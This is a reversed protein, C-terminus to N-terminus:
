TSRSSRMTPRSHWPRVAPRRSTVLMREPRPLVAESEFRIHVPGVGLVQDAKLRTAERNVVKASAWWPLFDPYREVDAAFDFIQECSFPLGSGVREIVMGPRDRALTINAPTRVLPDADVVTVRHEALQERV